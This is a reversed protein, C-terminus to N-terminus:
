AGWVEAIADAVRDAQALGAAAAAPRAAPDLAKRGMGRRAEADPTIVLSRVDGPLTALQDDVSSGRRIGQRTPTIVLVRDCGTALDANTVSRMGGDYYRRDGITVSPWVGPIACSAAVADVLGVGSSSDFVTFEGSQAEIAPIKVAAAPWEHQPLRKEIVARRVPEEVTAAALALAGVKQFARREDRTFTLALMARVVALGLAGPIEPISGDVQAELLADLPTTGALNAAVVSGASTGIFLDADRIAIGHRALGVALGTEWAIGTLGGGGFVVGRTM